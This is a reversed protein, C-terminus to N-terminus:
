AGGAKVRRLEEALLFALEVSQMANLRPDCHTNYREKLTEESIAQAGGTCETVDQGTMEIHIGGSHVGEARHIAFVERVEALVDNFPRTKLGGPSKVTNGHMPDCSWIVNRGEAKVKRILAPLTEEAKGAGFRSIVTIRGPINEPNITDILRLFDDPKTTPGAKVGIPNAIGRMFEVHAGDVQRTRDGIWLFHASCNYYKGDHKYYRTLAEEYNLLLGEHSTFFEARTMSDHLGGPVGTAALFAFSEQIRDALNAFLESQQSENRFSETWRNINALSAYGGQALARIYNLTASASHYAQVMRDPDPVRAQGTFDLGNVMDGRYSPLTVGGETEEDSSRPKAFQGAIRGVKVVPKGTGYMLAVTMQLFVRFYDRVNQANSEAFSEACDGGQLLFAKGACVDALYANLRQIEGPHVLPLAGSLRSEAQELANKDPYNPQQLAERSRWSSPSWNEPVAQQQHKEKM